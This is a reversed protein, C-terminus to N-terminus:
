PLELTNCAFSLLFSVQLFAVIGTSGSLSCNIGRQKLLSQNCALFQEQFAESLRRAQLGGWLASAGCSSYLPDLHQWTALEVELGDIFWRWHVMCTICTSFCRWRLTM